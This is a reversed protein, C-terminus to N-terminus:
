DLVPRILVLSVNDAGGANLAADLLSQAQTELDGQPDRLLRAIDNDSVLGHLGDSCILYTDGAELVGDGVDVEAQRQLGLSRTLVNDRIGAARAAERSLFVGDDVMRQILSHDHTLRRMRGFRVRYLRSDGVHAYFVRRDRFATVVLTTGMGHLEPQADCTDLLAENAAEVARGIRSLGAATDTVADRQAAVLEDLARQAAIRSAVEGARHGGMGDALVAAGLEIDFAVEDQNYRRVLGTHCRSALDLRHAGM